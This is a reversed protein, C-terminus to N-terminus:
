KKGVQYINKYNYKLENNELIKRLGHKETYSYIINDKLIIIEDDILSWEKINEIKLLLMSEKNIKKYIKNAKQYYIYQNKKQNQFTQKTQFFESKNLVLKKNNKYTIYSTTGTDLEKIKKKIINIKYQKKEKNDTVYIENNKVGNIYSDKSLKKEPQYTKLRDKKFDYYYIKEIGNVSSNEFLVYYNNVICSVINDYLDYNLIKQYKNKDKSIIYIGKYDWIFYVDDELINKPYIKIKKYKKTALEEKPYGINYKKIKTQLESFENKNNKLLYDISVQQNDLNCYINLNIKKKYIPIICTLNNNKYVKINKIIKKDKKFNKHLTFIYTKKGKNIIFEYRHNKEKYFYESINHNDVKYIYHHKKISFYHMRNVLIVLLIILIIRKYEKM